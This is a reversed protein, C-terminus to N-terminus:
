RHRRLRSAVDTFNAALREAVHRRVDAAGCAPNARLAQLQQREYEFRRQASWLLGEVICVGRGLGAPRGFAAARWTPVPIGGLHAKYPETGRLHDYVRVGDEFLARMLMLHVAMGPSYRAAEGADGLGAAYSHFEDRHRFGCIGAVRGGDLRLFALVLQGRAALGHAAERLFETNV